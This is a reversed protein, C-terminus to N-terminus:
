VSKESRGHTACGSNLSAHSETLATLLHEGAKGHREGGAASKSPPLAPTATGLLKATKIHRYKQVTCGDVGRKVISACRSLRPLTHLHTAITKSDHRKSKAHKACSGHARPAANRSSRSSRPGSASPSRGPAHHGWSESHRGDQWGGKGRRAQVTRARSECDEEKNSELRSNLSVVM